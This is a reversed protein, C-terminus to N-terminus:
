NFVVKIGLKQSQHHHVRHAYVVVILSTVVWRSCLPKDVNKPYLGIARWESKINERSLGIPCAKTYFELFKAKRVRTEDM